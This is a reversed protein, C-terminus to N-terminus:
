RKREASKNRVAAKRTKSHVTVATRRIIANKASLKVKNRKDKSASELAAVARTSVSTALSDIAVARYDDGATQDRSIKELEAVALSDNSFNALLSAAEKRVEEVPDALRTIIADRVAATNAVAVLGMVGIRVAPDPDASILPLLADQAEKKDIEKSIEMIAKSKIKRSKSNIDALDAETYAFAFGNLLIISLIIIQPKNRNM